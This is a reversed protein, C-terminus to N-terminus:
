VMPAFKQTPKSRLGGNAGLCKEDYQFVSRGTRLTIGPIPNLHQVADPALQIDVVYGGSGGVPKMHVESVPTSFQNLVNMSNIDAEEGLYNIKTTKIIDNLHTRRIRSVLQDKGIPFDLYRGTKEM